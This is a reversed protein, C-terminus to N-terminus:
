QQNHDLVDMLMTEAISTITYDMASTAMFAVTNDYAGKFDAAHVYYSVNVKKEKGKSEDITTLALRVRYWYADAPAHNDVIERVTSYKIGLIEIDGFPKLEDLIRSEAETFNLADVLYLEKVQKQQGDELTRNLSVKVELWKGYM